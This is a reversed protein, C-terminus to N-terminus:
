YWKHMYKVKILSTYGFRNNKKQEEEWIKLLNPGSLGIFSFAMSSSIQTNREQSYIHTFSDEKPWIHENVM